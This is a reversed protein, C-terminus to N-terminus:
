FLAFQEFARALGDEHVTGTVCDAAAKAEDTANGMAVGTGCYRLMSVDGGTDGFAFCDAPSLGLREAIFRCGNAKSAGLKTIEAMENPRGTRTWGAVQLRSGFREVLREFM